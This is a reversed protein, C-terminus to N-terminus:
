ATYDTVFNIFTGLCVLFASRQSRGGPRRRFPFTPADQGRQGGVNAGRVLVFLTRNELMRRRIAVRERMCPTDM